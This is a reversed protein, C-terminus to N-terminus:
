RELMKNMHKLDLSGTLIWTKSGSLLVRPRILLHPGPTIAIISTSASCQLGSPSPLISRFFSLKMLVDNGFKIILCKQFDMWKLAYDHQLDMVKGEWQWKRSPKKFQPHHGCKPNCSCIYTDYLVQCSFCTESFALLVFYKLWILFGIHKYCHEGRSYGTVDSCGQNRACLLYVRRVTNDYSVVHSFM